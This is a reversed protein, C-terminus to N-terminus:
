TPLRCTGSDYDTTETKMICMDCSDLDRFCSYCHRQPFSKNTKRGCAVCNIEGQYELKINKGILDNMNVLEDGIPLQYSVPTSLEVQMKRINGKM